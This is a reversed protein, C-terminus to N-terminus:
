NKSINVSINTVCGISINIVVGSRSEAEGCLCEFKNNFVRIELINYNM